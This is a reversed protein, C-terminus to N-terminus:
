APRGEPPILEHRPVLLGLMLLDSLDRLPVLEM